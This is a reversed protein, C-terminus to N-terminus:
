RGPYLRIFFIRLLYLEVRLGICGLGCPRERDLLLDWHTDSVLELVVRENRDLSCVTVASKIKSGGGGLLLRPKPQKKKSLSTETGGM